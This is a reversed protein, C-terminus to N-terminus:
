HRQPLPWDSASGIGLGCLEGTNRPLRPKSFPCPDQELVGGGVYRGMQYSRDNLTEEQKGDPATAIAECARRLIARGFPSSCRFESPGAAGELNSVRRITVEAWAPTEPRPTTPDSLWRYGSQPGSPIIVYGGATRTDIGRAIKDRSNVYDRGKADTYIHNGGSATAVRPAEFAEPKCGQLKQFETFGNKGRKIDLDIVVADADLAHGWLAGPNGKAWRAITLEDTTAVKDWHDVIPTKNGKCPFIRCGRKAAQLGADLLDNGGHETTSAGQAGPSQTSYQQQRNPDDRM